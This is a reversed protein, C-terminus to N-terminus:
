DIQDNTVVILALSVYFFSSQVDVTKPSIKIQSKNSIFSSTDNQIIPCDRVFKYCLIKRRHYFKVNFIKM